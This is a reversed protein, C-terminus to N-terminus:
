YEIATIVKEIAEDVFRLEANSCDSNISFADAAVDHDYTVAKRYLDIAQTGAICAALSMSIFTRKQTSM